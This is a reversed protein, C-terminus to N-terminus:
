VDEDKTLILIFIPIERLFKDYSINANKKM